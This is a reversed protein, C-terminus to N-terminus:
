ANDESEFQLKPEINFYESVMKRLHFDCLCIGFQPFAIVEKETADANKICMWCKSYGKDIVIKM